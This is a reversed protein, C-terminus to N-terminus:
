PERGEQIAQIRVEVEDLALSLTENFEPTIHTELQRKLEFLRTLISGAHECGESAPKREVNPCLLTRMVESRNTKSAQLTALRELRKRKQRPWDLWCMMSSIRFTNTPVRPRSASSSHKLTLRGSSYRQNGQIASFPCGT